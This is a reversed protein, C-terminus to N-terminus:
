KGAQVKQIQANIQAITADIRQIQALRARGEPSRTPDAHSASMQENIGDRQAGLAAIQQALQQIRSQRAALDRARAAAEMQQAQQRKREALAALQAQTPTAAPPASVAIEEVDQTTDSEKVEVQVDKAMVVLTDGKRSVLKLETGADFGFIGTDNSLSIRRKLYLGKKVAVPTPTSTPVPTAVARPTPVPTAEAETSDNQDCGGFLFALSGAMAFACHKLKM